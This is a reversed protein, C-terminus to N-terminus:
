CICITFLCHRNQPPPLPGRSRGNLLRGGGAGELHPTLHNFYLLTFRVNVYRM